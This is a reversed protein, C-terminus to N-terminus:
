MQKVLDYKGLYGRIIVAECSEFEDDEDTSKTDRADSTLWVIKPEGIGHERVAILEDLATESPGSRREWDAHDFYDVTYGVAEISAREIVYLRQCNYGEAICKRLRPSGHQDIWADREADRQKKADAERQERISKLANDQMSDLSEDRETWKECWKWVYWDPRLIPGEGTNSKNLADYNGNRILEDMIPKMRDYEARHRVQNEELARKEAEYKEAYPQALREAIQMHLKNAERTQEIREIIEDASPEADFLIRQKAIWHSAATGRDHLNYSEPKERIKYETISDEYKIAVQLNGNPDINALPVIVDRQHQDLEAIDIMLEREVPKTTGTLAEARRAEDSVRYFFKITSM